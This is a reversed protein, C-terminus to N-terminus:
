RSSTCKSSTSQVARRARLVFKIQPAVTRITILIQRERALAPLRAQDATLNAVRQAHFRNDLVSEAADALACANALDFEVSQTM